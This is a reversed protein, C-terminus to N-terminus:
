EIRHDILFNMVNEFAKVTKETIGFYAINPTEELLEPRTSDLVTDTTIEVFVVPLSLPNM